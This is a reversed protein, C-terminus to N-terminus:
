NTKKLKTDDHIGIVIVQIECLVLFRYHGCTVLSIPGIHIFSHSRIQRNQAICYSTWLLHVM